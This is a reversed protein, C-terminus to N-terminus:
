IARGIIQYFTAGFPATVGAKEFLSEMDEADLVITVSKCGDAGFQFAFAEGTALVLVLRVVSASSPHDKSIGEMARTLRRAEDGKFDYGVIPEEPFLSANVDDVKQCALGSQGLGDAAAAHHTQASMCLMAGIILPAVRRHATASPRNQASMRITTPLLNSNDPM